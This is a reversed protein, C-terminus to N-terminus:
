NLLRALQARYLNVLPGQGGLLDFVALMAKRAADNNFKRERKIIELLESLAKEHEGALAQRCALQFQALTDQPHSGIRAILDNATPAGVLAQALNLQAGVVLVEPDRAHEVPIRTYAQNAATLDGSQTYIRALTLLSPTHHPDLALAAEALRLAEATDGQNYAQTAADLVADVERPLHRDIFARVGSEPLAGMFEDVKQGNKFMRVTPLSRIGNKGALAQHEDTDVKVLYFKGQYEEALKALLPMLSRCPACWSAWFDVVVPTHHSREIVLTEFTDGTADSIFPTQTM